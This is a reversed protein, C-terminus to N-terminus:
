RCLLIIEIGIWINLRPDLHRPRLVIVVDSVAHAGEGVESGAVVLHRSVHSTVRTVSMDGVALGPHAVLGPQHHTVARVGRHRM